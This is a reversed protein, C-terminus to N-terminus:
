SRGAPGVGLGASSVLALVARRHEDVSRVGVLMVTLPGHAPGAYRACDAAHLQYFAYPLTAVSRRTESV